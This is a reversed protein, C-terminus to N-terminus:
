RGKEAWLYELGVQGELVEAIVGRDGVLAGQILPAHHQGGEGRGGSGARDVRGGSAGVAHTVGAGGQGGIQGRRLNGAEDHHGVM